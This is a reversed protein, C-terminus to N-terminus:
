SWCYNRHREFNEFIHLMQWNPMYFIDDTLVLTFIINKM